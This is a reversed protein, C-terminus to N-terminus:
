RILYVERLDYLLTDASLRLGGIGRQGVVEAKRWFVNVFPPDLAVIEQMSMFYGRRQNVDVVASVADLMHAIEPNDYFMRNQRGGPYLISRYSSSSLSMSLNSFTMQSGNHPDSTIALFTAFDYVTITVNIGIAALQAQLVEAARTHLSNMVALEVAEGNYGSMILHERARDLDYSIAPISSHRFETDYGWITGSTDAIALDGDAVSAIVEKDMAHMVAMRFHYDGTIRDKMNFTLGHMNNNVVSFVEFNGPDTRFLLVDEPAIGFCLQCDGVQMIISRTVIEPIYRLAMSQTVINKSRDWYNENRVLYVYDYPYFEDVIYAGTGVYTFGYPYELLARASLIGASPMSLNYLFDVNVESLEFVVTYSDLVLVADVSAWQAEGPSGSGFEKAYNVTRMIDEATMKDGNHFYVDDRLHFIFTKFDSTEWSVALSPMFVGNKQDWELLRDYIMTFVWNSSTTNGVPEFPSIASIPSNDVIIDIHDAYDSAPSEMLPPPPVPIDPAPATSASGGPDSPMPAPVEQVAAPSDTSDRGPFLSSVSQRLSGGSDSDDDRSRRTESRTSQTNRNNQGFPLNDTALLVVFLAVIVVVVAAVPILIKKLSKGKVHAPPAPVVPAPAVPAPAVPTPAVPAPVVIAASGASAGPVPAGCERCFSMGDNLM